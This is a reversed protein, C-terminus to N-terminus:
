DGIKHIRNRIYNFRKYASKCLSLDLKILFSSFVLKNEKKETECLATWKDYYM